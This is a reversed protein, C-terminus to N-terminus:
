MSLKAELFVENRSYDYFSLDSDRDEYRYGVGFDV